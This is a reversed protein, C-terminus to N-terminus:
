YVADVRRGAEGALFKEMLIADGRPNAYYDARRGSTIFGRGAYLAIAAANDAHVELLLRAAGREAARSEADLLLLSGVGRRREGDAVAVSLLEAWDPYCRTVAYGLVRGGDVALAFRSEPRDTEERLSSYSWPRVFPGCALGLVAPVDDGSARAIRTM